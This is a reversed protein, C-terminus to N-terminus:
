LLKGLASIAMMSVGNVTMHLFVSAWLSNTKEYIRALLFSAPLYQLLYLWATPDSVAYGWIHYVSFLLMSAAYAAFRSYRRLLGFVGGRFMAEEAIPALFVAVATTMGLDEGALSFIAANNPNDKQGIFILAVGIAMNCLLLIGYSKAVELLVGPGYDCLADFERRFFRRLCGFLVLAAVVYCVANATVASLPLDREEYFSVLLWPLLYVHVPIYGLAAAREWRSMFSTFPIRKKEEM